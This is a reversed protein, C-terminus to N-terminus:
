DAEDLNDDQRRERILDGIPDLGPKLWHRGAGMLQRALEGRNPLIAETAELAHVSDFFKRRERPPLAKVQELVDHASM